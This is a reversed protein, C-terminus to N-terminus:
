TNQALSSVDAKVGRRKSVAEDLLLSLERESLAPGDDSYLTSFSLSALIRSSDRTHPTMEAKPLDSHSSEQTIKHDSQKTDHSKLGAPQPNNLPPPSPHPPSTYAALLPPPTCLLESLDASSFLLDQTSIPPQEPTTTAPEVIHTSHCFPDIDEKMKPSTSTAKTDQDSAVGNALYSPEEHSSRTPIKHPVPPPSSPTSIEREIQTNSPLLSM